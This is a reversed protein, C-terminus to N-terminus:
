NFFHVINDNNKVNKDNSIRFHTFLFQNLIQTTYKTLLGKIKILSTRKVWSNQCHAQLMGSSVLQTFAIIAHSGLSSAMQLAQM